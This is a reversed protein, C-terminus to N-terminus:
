HMNAIHDLAVMMDSDDSSAVTVHEVEFPSNVMLNM